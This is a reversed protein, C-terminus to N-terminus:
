NLMPGEYDLYARDFGSLELLKDLDDFTVIGGRFTLLGDERLERLVRNIHIASLGLADALHYQSVPCEYSNGSALGVLKLRAGLELFLHAVREAADRRGLSVLREVVIAEDSSAAWLVATALRPCTHFAGLLDKVKVESAEVKQIPEVSHDATRFLVSRLGIFDGPLQFGVIQRGGGRLIKYSCVWGKALIYASPSSQGEYVMEIKDAFTRRNKHFKALIELEPESLSVYAGLKRVLPSKQISM